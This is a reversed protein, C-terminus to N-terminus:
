IEDDVYKEYQCLLEAEIKLLKYLQVYPLMVNSNLKGTKEREIWGANRDKMNEMIVETMKKNGMFVKVNNLIAGRMDYGASKEIFQLIIEKLPENYKFDINQVMEIMYNRLREEAKYFLEISSEYIGECTYLSEKYLDCMDEFNFDLSLAVQVKNRKDIPTIVCTYYMIYRSILIEMYRNYRKIKDNEEKHETKSSQEDLFHQVFSVTVIIGLLNTGIGFLINNINNAMRETFKGYESCAMGLLIISVIFLIVSITGAASKLWKKIKRFMKMKRRMNKIFKYVISDLM